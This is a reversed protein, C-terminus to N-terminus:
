LKVEQLSILHEVAPADEKRVTFAWEGNSLIVAVENLTHCLFPLEQRESHHWVDNFDRIYYVSPVRAIM